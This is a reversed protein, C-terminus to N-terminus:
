SILKKLNEINKELNFKDIIFTKANEGLRKRSDYNYFLYCIHNTYDDVTKCLFGNKNHDILRTHGGLYYAVPVCKFYMAEALSLGLTEFESCNLFVDSNAVHQYLDENEIWEIFEINISKSLKEFHKKEPGNGIIKVHFNGRYKLDVQKIIEAMLKINKEKMLRGFYIITPINHHIYDINLSDFKQTDVGEISVVESNFVNVKRLEDQIYPSFLFFKEYQILYNYTFKRILKRFFFRIIPNYFELGSIYHSHYYVFMKVNHTNSYDIGLPKGYGIFKPFGALGIPDFILITDPNIEKLINDINNKKYNILYNTINRIDDGFVKEFFRGLHISPLFLIRINLSENTILNLIKKKFDDSPSPLLIWIENEKVLRSAVRLVTQGIGGHQPPLQLTFIVIRM